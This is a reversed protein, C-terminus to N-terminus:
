PLTGLQESRAPSGSAASSRSEARVSNDEAKVLACKRNQYSNSSKLNLTHIDVRRATKRTEQLRIKKPPHGPSPHYFTHM